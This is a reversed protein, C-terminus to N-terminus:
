KNIKKLVLRVMKSLKKINLYAPLLFQALFLTSLGRPFIQRQWVREETCTVDENVELIKSPWQLGTEEKLTNTQLSACEEKKQKNGAIPRTTLWMFCIGLPLQNRDTSNADTAPAKSMPFLSTRQINSVPHETGQSAYSLSRMLLVLYAIHSGRARSTLFVSVWNYGIQCIEDHM